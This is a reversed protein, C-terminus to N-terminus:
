GQVSRPFPRSYGATDALRRMGPTLRIFAYRSLLAVVFGDAATANEVTLALEKVYGGNGGNSKDGGCATLSMAFISAVIATITIKKKM